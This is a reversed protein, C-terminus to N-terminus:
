EYRLGWEKHYIFPNKIDKDEMIGLIGTGLSFNLIFAKM